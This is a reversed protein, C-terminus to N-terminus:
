DPGIDGTNEAIKTEIATLLQEKTRPPLSLEGRLVNIEDLMLLVLAKLGEPGFARAITKEGLWAM